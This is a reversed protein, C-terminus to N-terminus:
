KSKSRNKAKEHREILAKEDEEKAHAKAADLKKQKATAALVAKRADVDAKLAAQVTADQASQTRKAEKVEVAKVAAQTAVFTAKNKEELALARELAKQRAERREDDSLPPRPKRAEEIAKRQSELLVQKAHERDNAAKEDRAKQEAELKVARAKAEAQQKALVAERRKESIERNKAAAEDAEELLKAQKDDPCWPAVPFMKTQFLYKCLDEAAKQSVPRHLFAGALENWEFIYQVGFLNVPAMEGRSLLDLRKLYFQNNM